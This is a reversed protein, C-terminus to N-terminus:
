EEEFGFSSFKLTRCNETVTRVANDPVDQAFDAAIEITVRVNSGMLSTIHQLVEMKIKDAQTGLKLPDAEVAAHFRRIKQKAPKPPIVVPQDGNGEIVNPDGGERIGPPYVPPTLGGIPPMVTPAKMKELEERALDPRILWGSADLRSVLSDSAMGLELYAGADTVGAAYGFYDDKPLGDRIAGLLVSQDKLRPLYCYTALYEWLKKIQIRGNEKWLWRDLEMRLLAPAWKSILQEAQRLKATAKVVHSGEGGPMRSIEWDLSGNGEQTPVLLWIYTERLRLNVTQDSRSLGSAAEKRQHGDLNLVEEEKVVSQWALFRKTESRLSTMLEADPAVFILMNRFMRAGTGRRDLIENATTRASSEQAGQRHTQAPELVVLRASTEDPVDLSSAPCTHVAAFDGRDRCAKLRRELEMDVADDKTQQARDEVTRRLNPTVDYWYRPPTAYLYTLKNELHGLADNFLAVQEGPQVVGLRVRVDEIGRNRQEKVTPASGLFVARAVRRSALYQGFRPSDADIQHPLSRKGDVDREVISNWGDPLHRTLEERVQISDLPISGPMIMLSADNEMWLNHIVSAMLRLVGRTKQFRELSAWDNYLRDFIEPHIPYCSRLRELYALERSESPFDSASRVYMESFARCAEEKAAKDRIPLFLRRQVISFGEEAGVPKWIAEMRGFTHELSELARKGADGGAEIDSEPISAVVLSNKSARAAETLEQVFSLASDYSGAPLGDVGYLKRVYAVMEDLLIVCPGCADFMERLTDSGPSVSAKDADKVFDYIKPDGCQEALQAALEGWLTRIMIGPFNIPRRTKSPNLFTGVLAVVRTKPLQTVGAGSLVDKTNPIRDIMKDSRLLHFLALMSHTKGGGFATKLQIVPEGGLGSVRKVAQQLLGRMGETVYTRAFFEVPDQYEIEATGRMVQSLDAAFEAQKYRGQAVDPHPEIVFRWSTLGAKPPTTMVTGHDTPTNDAATTNSPTTSPAASGYRVERGLARLTETAESDIQEMLRGMTDIARWADADEFDGSGKHAWKNRTTILEKVWNRHERSMKLKFTTNWNLDILLLCRAADLKDVLTVWEGSAPLDRKQDEYLIDLVGNKWWSQKFQSQLQQAVYPALFETLVQFGRTVRQYNEM